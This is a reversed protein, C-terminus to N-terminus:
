IHILSLEVWLAWLGFFACQPLVTYKVQLALGGLLMAVLARATFRPHATDILLSAMGLLLPLFFVESQASYSAYACMLMTQIAAAITASSRSALLRALRYTLAASALAFGASVLQYALPGPGLLAHALGFIAFLGFPKRDWWDAFPLEGYTMRWGIFSYLQEDFDAVPDGQRKYM